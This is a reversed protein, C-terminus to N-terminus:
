ASSINTATPPEVLFCAMVGDPMWNPKINRQYSGFFEKGVNVFGRVRSRGMSDATHHVATPVLNAGILYM